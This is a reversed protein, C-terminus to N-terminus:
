RTRCTPRCARSSRSGASRAPKWRVCSRARSWRRRAVSGKRAAARLELQLPHIRRRHRGHRAGAADLRRQDGRRHAREGLEQRHGATWAAVARSRHRADRRRNGDAPAPRRVEAHDHRRRDLKGGMLYTLVAWPSLKWNPPKQARTKKPSRPSNRPSNSSPPRANCPTKPHEKTTVHLEENCRPAFNWSTTSNNWRTAGAIAKAANMLCRPPADRAPTSTAADRGPMSRLKAVAVM